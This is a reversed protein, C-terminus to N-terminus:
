ENSMSALFKVPVSLRSYLITQPSCLSASVGGIPQFEQFTQPVETVAAPYYPVNLGTGFGVEVVVRKLGRCVRARVARNPKRAM